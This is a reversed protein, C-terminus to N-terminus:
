FLPLLSVLLFLLTSFALLLINKPPPTTDFAIPLCKKVRYKNMKNIMERIKGIHASDKRKEVYKKKKKGSSIRTESM